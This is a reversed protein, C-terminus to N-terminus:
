RAGERLGQRLVLGRALDTITALNNETDLKLAKQRANNGLRAALEPDDLLLRLAARLSRPDKGPVLLGDVGDEIYDSAGQPDNVVVPKGMAMANLFTQQGGSHLLSSDLSVVNISSEAMLQMFRRHDVGVLRVNEPLDLHKVAAPNSCAIIVPLELDRVAEVLTHYDRAFNGGSFLYGCDRAPFNEVNTTHYPVFLFKRQPLGFATAYDAIERRSWVVYCSVVKDLWRFLVSRAAHRLPSTRYWLCDIKIVPRPQLPWLRQLLLYFLDYQAGGGLVVVRYHHRLRFLRLAKRFNDLPAFRSLRGFDPFCANRRWTRSRDGGAHNTLIFTQRM